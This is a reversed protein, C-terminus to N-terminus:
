KNKQLISLVDKDDEPISLLESERTWEWVPHRPKRGDEMRMWEMFWQLGILLLHRKDRLKRSEWCSCRFRSHDRVTRIFLRCYWEKMRVFVRMGRMMVPMGDMLSVLFRRSVNMMM